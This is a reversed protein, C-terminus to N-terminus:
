QNSITYNLESDGYATSPTLLSVSQESYTVDRKIDIPM